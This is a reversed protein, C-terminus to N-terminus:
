EIGLEEFLIKIAKDIVDENHEVRKPAQALFQVEERGKDEVNNAVELQTNIATIEQQNKEM